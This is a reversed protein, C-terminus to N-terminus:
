SRGIAEGTELDFYHIQETDVVVEIADGTRAPSAADFRGVLPLTADQGEQELYPLSERSFPGGTISNWNSANKSM